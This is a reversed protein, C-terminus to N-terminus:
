QRKTIEKLGTKRLRRRHLELKLEIVNLINVVRETLVRSPREVTTPSAKSKNVVSDTSPAASDTPSTHFTNTHLDNIAPDLLHDEM